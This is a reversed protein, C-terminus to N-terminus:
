KNDECYKVITKLSELDEISDLVITEDDQSITIDFGKDHHRQQILFITYDDSDTLRLM